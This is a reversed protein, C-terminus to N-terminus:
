AYNKKIIEKLNEPKYNELKDLNYFWIESLEFWHSNKDLNINKSFDEVNEINYWFDITTWWFKNVFEQTFVLKWIIPKIWLEEIFERELTEKTLEWPELTWWPLCYFNWKRLKCLFVKNEKLILWRVKILVPKKM